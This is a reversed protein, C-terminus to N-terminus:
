LKQAAPDLEQPLYVTDPSNSLLDLLIQAHQEIRLRNFSHIVAAGKESYWVAM